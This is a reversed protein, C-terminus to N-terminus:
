WVHWPEEKIEEKDTERRIINEVEVANGVSDDDAKNM